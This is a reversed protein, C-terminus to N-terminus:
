YQVSRWESEAIAECVRSANWLTRYTQATRGVMWPPRSRPLHRRQRTFRMLPGHGERNETAASVDVEKGLSRQLKALRSGIKSTLQPCLLSRQSETQQLLIHTENRLSEYDDHKLAPQKQAWELAVALWQASTTANIDAHLEKKFINYYRMFDVHELEQMALLLLGVNRVTFGARSLCGVVHTLHKEVHQVMDEQFYLSRRSYLLHLYLKEEENLEVLESEELERLIKKFEKVHCKALAVLSPFIDRSSLPSAQRESLLTELSWAALSDDRAEGALKAVTHVVAVSPVYGRHVVRFQKFWLAGKRDESSSSFLSLCQQLLADDPPTDTRLLHKHAIEAYRHALPWREARSCSRMMSVLCYSNPWEASKDGFHRELCSFYQEYIAAEGWDNRNYLVHRRSTYWWKDFVVNSPLRLLRFAEHSIDRYEAARGSHEGGRKTDAEGTETSLKADSPIDHAICVFCRTSHWFIRLVIPAETFSPGKVNDASDISSLCRRLYEPELTYAAANVVADSLAVHAISCCSFYFDACQAHHGTVYALRCIEKCLHVKRPDCCRVFEDLLQKLAKLNGCRNGPQTYARLAEELVELESSKTSACSRVLHTVYRHVRIKFANAFRLM